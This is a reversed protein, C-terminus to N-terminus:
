WPPYEGLRLPYAFVSESGVKLTSRFIREVHVSAPEHPTSPRLFLRPPLDSGERQHAMTNTRSGARNTIGSKTM